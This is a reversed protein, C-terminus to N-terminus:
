EDDPSLAGGVDIEVGDTLSSIRDMIDKTIPVPVFTTSKRKRIEAESSSDKEKSADSM